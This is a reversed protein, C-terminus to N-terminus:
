SPPRLAGPCPGASGDGACPEAPRDASRPVGSAAARGRYTVVIGRIAADDLLNNAIVEFTRWSGDAHQIRLETTLNIGPSEVTQSLLNQARVLDDAHVLDWAHQRDLTEPAYGWVRETAPSQYRVRGAGDLIVIVDSANKVLARFREENRRLLRQEAALVDSTRQAQEFRWFLLGILLLAGAMTLISGTTAAVIARHAEARYAAGASGLGEFLQDYAPDSREEDWEEAEELRNAAFLRFLEENAARYAHFADLVHQAEIPGRDLAVIQDLIQSMNQRLEQAQQAVDPDLRHESEVQLELRKLRNSLGEVHAVHVEAQRSADARRQLAVVGATALLAIILAAVLLARKPLYRQGINAQAAGGYVPMITEGVDTMTM